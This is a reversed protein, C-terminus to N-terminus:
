ALNKALQLKDQLALDSGEGEHMYKYLSKREEMFIYVTKKDFCLGIPYDVFHTEISLVGGLETM